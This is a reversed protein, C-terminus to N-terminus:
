RPTWQVFRMISVHLEYIELFLKLNFDFLVGGEASEGLEGEMTSTVRNSIEFASCFIFIKHQFTSFFFLYILSVNKNAGENHFFFYM